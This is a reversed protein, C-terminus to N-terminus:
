PKMMADVMAKRFDYFTQRLKSKADTGYGVPSEIHIQHGIDIGETISLFDGALGFRCFRDTM